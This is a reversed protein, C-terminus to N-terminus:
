RRGVRRERDGELPTLICGTLYRILLISVSSSPSTRAAISDSRPPRKEARGFEDPLENCNAALGVEGLAQMAGDGLAAGPLHHGVEETDEDPVGSIVSRVDAAGGPPPELGIVIQPTDTHGEM